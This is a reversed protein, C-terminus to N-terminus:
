VKGDWQSRTTLLSLDSDELDVPKVTMSSRLFLSWFCCLFVVLDLAKMSIAISRPITKFLCALNDSKIKPSVKIGQHQKFNSFIKHYIQFKNKIQKFQQIQNLSSCHIIKLIFNQNILTITLFNFTFFILFPFFKASFLILFFFFFFVSTTKQWRFNQCTLM